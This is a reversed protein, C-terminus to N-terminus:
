EWLLTFHGATTQDSDDISISFWYDSSPLPSGNYIGNWGPYENKYKAIEKGHRDYIHITYKSFQDLHDILWTDNVGDGNPTVVIGPKIDTYHDKEPLTDSRLVTIHYTIVSDCGMATLEKIQHQGPQTIKKGDIWFDENDYISTDITTKYTPNVSLHLVVTSDAGYATKTKLTDTGSQSMQKNAFTYFEGECINENLEVEIPCYAVEGVLHDIKNYKIKHTNTTGSLVSTETTLITNGAIVGTATKNEEEKKLQANKDPCGDDFLRYQYNPSAYEHMKSTPQSFSLYLDVEFPTVAEAEFVTYYSVRLLKVTQKGAEPTFYIGFLACTDGIGGEHKAKIRHKSVFLLSDEDTLAPLDELRKPADAAHYTQSAGKSTEITLEDIESDFLDYAGLLEAVVEDLPRGVACGESGVKLLDGGSPYPKICYSNTVCFTLIILLIKKM